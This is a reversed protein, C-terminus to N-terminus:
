GAVTVPIPADKVVRDSVSGLLLKAVGGRGRRGMVIQQFRGENALRLIEAAPDGFRIAVTCPIGAAALQRQAEGTHGDVEEEYERRLPSSAGAQAGEERELPLVALLTVSGVKPRSQTVYRVAELSAASGDTPLLVDGSLAEPPATARGGSRTAFLALIAFPGLVGGALVWGFPDRGSRGAVFSCVLACILNVALVIAVFGAFSM